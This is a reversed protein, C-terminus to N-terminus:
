VKYLGKGRGTHQRACAHLLSCREACVTKLQPPLLVSSPMLPSLALVLERPLFLAEGVLMTHPMCQSQM